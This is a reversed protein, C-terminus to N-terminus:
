RINRGDIIAAAILFSARSIQNALQHVDDCDSADCVSQIISRIAYSQHWLRGRCCITTGSEDTIAIMDKTTADIM